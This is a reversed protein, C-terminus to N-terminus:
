YFQFNSNQQGRFLKHPHQVVLEVYWNTLANESSPPCHNIYQIKDEQLKM